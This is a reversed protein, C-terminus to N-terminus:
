QAERLPDGGPGVPPFGLGLRRHFAYSAGCALVCAKAAFRREGRATVTVRSAEVTIDTVRWGRMLEVGAAQARQALGHDFVHRDIVVAEVQPPTYAVSRGSPSHFSVSVLDNIVATRDAGFEEFADSALVGTCHVPVGIAEHEELILVDFGREALRLGAQLGGPGGGVIVVDHEKV